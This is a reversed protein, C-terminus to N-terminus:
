ALALRSADPSERVAIETFRTQRFAGPALINARRSPPGGMREGAQGSTRPRRSGAVGPAGAPIRACRPGEILAATAAHLGAACVSVVSVLGEASDPMSAECQPAARAVLLAAHPELSVPMETPCGCPTRTSWM